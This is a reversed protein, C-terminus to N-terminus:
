KEAAAQPQKDSNQRSWGTRRLFTPANAQVREIAERWDGIGQKLVERSERQSEVVDEIWERALALGRSQQNGVAESMAEYVGVLDTPNLLLRRGVETWDRNSQRAGELLSRSFRHSRENGSRMTDYVSAQREVMADFFRDVTSTRTTTSM